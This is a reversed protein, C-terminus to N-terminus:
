HVLQVEHDTGAHDALAHPSELGPRRAREAQQLGAGEVARAQEQGPIGDLASRPRRTRGGFWASCCVAPGDRNPATKVVHLDLVARPKPRQVHCCQSRAQLSDLGQRVDDCPSPFLRRAPYPRLHDRIHDHLVLVRM